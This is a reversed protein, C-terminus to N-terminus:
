KRLSSHLIILPVSTHFAMKKSNSENFIRSLLNHKHPIMAIMDIEHDSIFTNLGHILDNDIPLNHSHEIDDFYNEMKMMQIAKDVEIDEQEKEVNLIYLKANFKKIMYKLQNLEDINPVMSYDSAFAIKRLRKYTSKEPIIILPTQTKSMLDTTMSGLLFESVAGAAKIGMIIFDPKENKEIEMIEDEAFGLSTFCDIQVGNIATLIAAEKSLLKLSDIRLEEIDFTVPTPADATPAMAAHYAHFLLVRGGMDEAFHTAYIAANRSAETFDTPVLITSM